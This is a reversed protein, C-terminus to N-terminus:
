LGMKYFKFVLLGFGASPRDASGGLERFQQQLLCLQPLCLCLSGPWPVAQTGVPGRSAWDERQPCGEHQRQPVTGAKTWEQDEKM